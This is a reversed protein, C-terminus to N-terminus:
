LDIINGNSDEDCEISDETGIIDILSDCDYSSGSALYLLYSVCIFSLINKFM